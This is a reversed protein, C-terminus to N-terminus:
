KDREWGSDAGGSKVETDADSSTGRTKQRALAGLVGNVFRGSDETGFKKALEVAENIAVAVPVDDSYLIEYAAMRLIARDTAALRDTAWDTTFEALLGDLEAYRAAVGACLERVFERADAGIGSEAVAEAMAESGMDGTLDLGFLVKLAEERARRRTTV